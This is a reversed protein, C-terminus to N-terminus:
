SLSSDTQLPIERSMVVLRNPITLVRKPGCHRWRTATWRSAWFLTSKARRSGPPTFCFPRKLGMKGELSDLRFQCQRAIWQASNFQFLHTHTHRTKKAGGALILKPRWSRKRVTALQRSFEIRQAIVGARGGASESAGLVKALRRPCACALQGSRVGSSVERVPRAASEPAALGACRPARQRRRSNRAAQVVTACGCARKYAVDPPPPLGVKLRRQTPWSLLSAACSASGM